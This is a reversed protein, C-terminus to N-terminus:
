RDTVLRKSMNEEFMSIQTSKQTNSEQEIRNIVEDNIILAGLDYLDQYISTTNRLHSKRSYWENSIDVMLSALNLQSSLRYHLNIKDNWSLYKLVLMYHTSGPDIKDENKTADYLRIINSHMDVRCLLELKNVIGKITVNNSEFSKLAVTIENNTFTARYVKEYGGKGILKI